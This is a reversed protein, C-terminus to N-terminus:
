GMFETSDHFDILDSGQIGTEKSTIRQIDVAGEQELERLAERYDAETADQYRREETCTEVLKDFTVIYEEFRDQLFQKTEDGGGFLRAQNRDYEPQKPAYAFKGTGCYSMVERMTRLGEPHNTGYVLYYITQTTEPESIMYEFTEDPGNAELRDTYYEVLPVWNTSDYEGIENRWTENGFVTNLAEEHDESELFRNMDRSMFTILFEFQPTSGIKTVVDYDLSSFGFPDIFFFTPCDSGDLNEVVDLVTNQFEGHECRISINDAYGTTGAITESLTEYNTSNAEIFVCEASDFQDARNTLRDLILQPSGPIEAPTSVSELDIPETSDTDVYSGRGAFCDVVRTKNPNDAALNYSTLKNVWPTLYKGLVEHKAATHPRYVWKDDDDDALPM